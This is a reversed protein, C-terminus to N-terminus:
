INRPSAHIFSVQYDNESQEVIRCFEIATEQEDQFQFPIVKLGKFGYGRYIPAVDLM